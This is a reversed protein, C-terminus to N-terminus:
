YYRLTVTDIETIKFLELGIVKKDNKDKQWSKMYNSRWQIQVQRKEFKNSILYGKKKWLTVNGKLNCNPDNCLWLSFITVHYSIFKHAWWIRGTSVHMFIIHWWTSHCGPANAMCQNGRSLWHLLSCCFAVSILLSDCPTYVQGPVVQWPDTQHM